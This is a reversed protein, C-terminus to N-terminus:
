KFNFQCQLALVQNQGYQNQMLRPQIRFSLDPSIDFDFLQADVYADVITLAYFGIMGIISLDRNRRYNEQGSKLVTTLSEIGGYTDITYGKPIIDLYSTTLPDTDTIDIYANTYKKYNSSNWSIAYALAAFGGYVIPLKWYKRNIIQGSGPLIAAMRITKVPDPKYALTDTSLKVNASDSTLILKQKDSKAEKVEQAELISCLLLNLLVFIYGIRNM